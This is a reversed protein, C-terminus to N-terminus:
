SRCSFGAEWILSNWVSLFSCSWDWTQPNDIREEHRESWSYCSSITSNIISIILLLLETLSKLSSTQSWSWVEEASRFYLISVLHLVGTRDKNNILLVTHQQSSLAASLFTVASTIFYNTHHKIFWKMQTILSLPIRHAWGSSESWSVSQTQSAPSLFTDTSSKILRCSNGRQTMHRMWNMFLPRRISSLQEWPRLPSEPTSVPGSHSQLKTLTEM